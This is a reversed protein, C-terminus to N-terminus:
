ESLENDDIGEEPPTYGIKAPSYEHGDFVFKLYNDTMGMSDNKRMEVTSCFSLSEDSILKSTENILNTKVSRMSDTLELGSGKLNLHQIIHMAATYNIKDRPTLSGYSKILSDGYRLQLIDYGRLTTSIFFEDVLRQFEDKTIIRNSMSVLEYLTNECEHYQVTGRFENLWDNYKLAIEKPYIKEIFKMDAIFKLLNHYKSDFRYIVDVDRIDITYSKFARLMKLIADILYMDVPALYSMYKTDPFLTSFKTAIYDIYDPIEDENVNEIFEYLLLNRDQLYQTFTDPESGDSLEYISNNLKTYLITDYLKKYAFYTEVSSTEQMANALFDELDRINVYMDNVDSPKVFVINKLYKAIKGDYIRPNDSIEKKIADLDAEFNFGLIYLIKSPSKLIDPEMNNKKCLLCILLVQIDFLSQPTDVILPIDIRMRSTELKKDLILRALYVFEFTKNQMRFTLSINAYKTEVYNIEAKELKEVLEDDHIWLSDNATFEDYGYTNAATINELHVDNDNMGVGVFYYDFMKSRDLELYQVGDDDTMLKYSFHPILDSEVDKQYLKHQKVLLYKTIDINDYGLLDLVDYLVRSTHKEMLLLNLNKIIMKQQNLTFLTEFPIKYSELFMRCTELDYFDRDVMIKFTTSIMRQIAMHLIMFGIMGDYYEYRSSYSFNYVTSLFYERAEDYHMSFDRYFRNSTEVKPMYLLSFNEAMRSIVLDIKRSGLYSIYKYEPYIKQLDDLYGATDMAELTSDPLLHLPTRHEYDEQDYPEEFGYMQMDEYDLFIYDAGIPPLGMLMRYYDNGEEFESFFIKRENKLISPIYKSPIKTRDDLYIKITDADSIGAVRLSEEHIVDYTILSDMELSASCYMDGLRRTEVTEYKDAESKDKVVIKPITNMLYRKFSNLLEIM